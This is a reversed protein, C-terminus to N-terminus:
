KLLDALTYEGRQVNSVRRYEIIADVLSDIDSFYEKLFITSKVDRFGLDVVCFESPKKRFKKFETYKGENFIVLMEIEPATIINVVKVKHEYAKSLKFNESRSDLIRLITIGETFGKRLYREEFTKAKRCRLVEGELLNDYTFQLRGADLLLEMITQEAAGECLCAIYKSLEMM